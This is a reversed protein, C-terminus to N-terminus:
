GSYNILSSWRPSRKQHHPVLLPTLFDKNQVLSVNKNKNKNKHAHPLTHRVGSEGNFCFCKRVCVKTYFLRAQGIQGLGEM